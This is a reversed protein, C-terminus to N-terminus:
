AEDVAHLEEVVAVVVKRLDRIGSIALEQQTVIPVAPQRLDIGRQVGPPAEPPQEVQVRGRTVGIDVAGAGENGQIVWDERCQTGRPGDQWVMPDVDIVIARKVDAIDGVPRVM